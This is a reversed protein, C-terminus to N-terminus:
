RMCDEKHHRRRYEVLKIVKAETNLDMIGNSNIKIFITLYVSRLEKEERKREKEQKRKKLVHIYM